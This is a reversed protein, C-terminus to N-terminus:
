LIGKVESLHFQICFLPLILFFFDLELEQYRFLKESHHVTQRKAPAPAGKENLLRPDVMRRTPPVLELSPRTSICCPPTHPVTQSSEHDVFSALTTQRWSPCELSPATALIPAYKPWPVPLIQISSTAHVPDSSFKSSQPCLPHPTSFQPWPSSAPTM